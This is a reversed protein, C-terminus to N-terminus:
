QASTHQLALIAVAIANLPGTIQGSAEETDQLSPQQISKVRLM